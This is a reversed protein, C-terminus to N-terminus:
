LYCHGTRKLTLPAGSLKSRPNSLEQAEFSAGCRTCEDGRAETFGCRPCTGVVYRDALFRQEKESYLEDSDRAEIYGREVLDLFFEHCTEIHGECTTRSFHDFSINVREFLSKNCEHFIDVHQKPTRGALEASLVNAVGYEDSGCLFLVEKGLLREFRAYADAPLYSGALHGFHISGNAYPLAATILVKERM